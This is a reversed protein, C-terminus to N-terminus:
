RGEDGEEHLGLALLLPLRLPEGLAARLGFLGFLFDVLRLPLLLELRGSKNHCQRDEYYTLAM